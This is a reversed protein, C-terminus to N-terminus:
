LSGARLFLLSLLILSCTMIEKFFLMGNAASLLLLGALGMPVLFLAYKRSYDKVSKRQLEGTRRSRPKQNVKQYSRNTVVSMSKHKAVM